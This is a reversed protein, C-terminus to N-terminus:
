HTAKLAPRLDAQMAEKAIALREIRDKLGTRGGNVAETVAVVDDRDAAGNIRRMHWYWGASLAPDNEVLEPNFVLSDDNNLARSCALYNARGTLQIFGRGRFRLGDGPMSNGLAFALRNTAFGKLKAQAANVPWPAATNREYRRQQPTPGWLERVYVFGESEHAMQALWHVQRLPTTIGWREANAVISGAYAEGGLADIASEFSLPASGAPERCVARRAVRNLHAAVGAGPRGECAAM